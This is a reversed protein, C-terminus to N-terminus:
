AKSKLVPLSNHSRETEREEVGGKRRERGEEREGEGGERRRLRRGVSVL